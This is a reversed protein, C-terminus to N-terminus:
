RAPRAHLNFGFLRVGKSTRPRHSSGAEYFLYSGPGYVTDGEVLEGQVVYLQEPGDHVDVYPWEAGPSMDVVWAHADPTGPLDRRLCGSGVIVPLIDDVCVTVLDM